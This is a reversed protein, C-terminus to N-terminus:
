IIPHRQTEKLKIHKIGCDDTRIKLIVKTLILTEFKCLM